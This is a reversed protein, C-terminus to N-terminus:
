LNCDHVAADSREECHRICPSGRRQAGRLSPHMSQRTAASRATVSAHVAADSREECHRTDRPQLGHRFATMALGYATAIWTNM